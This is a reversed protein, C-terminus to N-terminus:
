FGPTALLVRSGSPDSLLDGSERREVPLGAAKAREIVAERAAHELRLTFYLMGASEPPAPPAGRGAWINYAIHHHYGHLSVFHAQGPFEASKQFGLVDLYFADAAALDAVQLHVHGLRTGPAAGADEAQAEALLGDWDLPANEMVVMGDKRPWESEPRDCYLEIGNGEPDALYIAESVLHDAGGQPAANMALLRQLVQGLAARLPFRIAMHYLGTTRPPRPREAGPELALLQHDGAGLVARGGGPRSESGGQAGATAGHEREILQLGLAGTYFERQRDLDMVSLCLPGFVSIDGSDQM